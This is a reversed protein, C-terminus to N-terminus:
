RSRRQQAQPAQDRRRPGDQASQDARRAIAGQRQDQGAADQRGQPTIPRREQDHGLFLWVRSDRPERARPAGVDFRSSLLVEYIRPAGRPSLPAAIMAM